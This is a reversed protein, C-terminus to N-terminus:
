CPGADTYVVLRSFRITDSQTKNGASGGSWPRVNLKTAPTGAAYSQVSDKILNGEYWIRWRTSDTGLYQALYELDHWQGAVLTDSPAGLGVNVFAPVNGPALQYGPAANMTGSPSQYWFLKVTNDNWEWDTDLRVTTRAYVSCITDVSMEDGAIWEGDGSQWVFDVATTDGYTRNFFAGSDAGAPWGRQYLHGNVCGNTNVVSQDDNTPDLVYCRSLGWSPDYAVGTEAFFTDPLAGGAATATQPYSETRGSSVGYGYGYALAGFSLAGLIAVSTQVARPWGVSQEDRNTPLM